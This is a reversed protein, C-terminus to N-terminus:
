VDGGVTQQNLYQELSRLDVLTYGRAKPSSRYLVSRIKGSRILKFISWRGLGYRQQVTRIKAYLPKSDSQIDSAAIKTVVKRLYLM